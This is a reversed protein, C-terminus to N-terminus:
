ARAFRLACSPTAKSPLSIIGVKAIKFSTLDAGNHAALRGVVAGLEGGQRRTPRCYFDPPAFASPTVLLFVGGTIMLLMALLNM